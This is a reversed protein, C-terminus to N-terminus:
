SVWRSQERVWVEDPSEFNQLVYCCDKALLNSIYISSSSMSRHIRFTSNSLQKTGGRWSAAAKKEIANEASFYAAHPQNAVSL